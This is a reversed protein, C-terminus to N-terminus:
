DSLVGPDVLAEMRVDDMVDLVSKLRNDSLSEQKDSFVATALVLKDIIPNPPFVMATTHVKRFLNMLRNWDRIEQDGWSAPNTSKYETQFWDFFDYTESLQFYLDYWKRQKWDRKERDAVQRAQSLSSRAIFTAALSLLLSAVSLLTSLM